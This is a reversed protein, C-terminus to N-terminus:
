GRGVHVHNFHNGGVNSKWIIQTRKGNRNFKYAGGTRALALSEKWSKGSAQKIAHAAILDGTGGGTSPFGNASSGIDVGNGSFHDSVNGTTTMRNHNTGTTVKVSRGSATMANLFAKMDATLGAGARNAGAEVSYHGQAPRDTENGQESDSSSSQRTVAPVDQSQRIALALQIPDSNKNALFQQLAQVRAESNDVGPTVVETRTSGGSSGGAPASGGGGFQRMLAEAEASRQQYRGRYQAAPRQVAAALDGATGYKGKVAGTEDFYRNVSADLNRPNKYLSAREQRWGQSDADGGALNRLGSEVLGTEFASKIEKPTAGRKRAIQAIRRAVAKQEATLTM